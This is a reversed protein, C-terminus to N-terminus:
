VKTPKSTAGGCVSVDGYKASPAKQVQAVFKGAAKKAAVSAFGDEDTTAKGVRVDKKKGLELVVIARKAECYAKNAAVDARFKGRKYSLTVRTSVLAPLNPAEASPEDDSEFSRPTEDGGCAGLVVLAGVLMAVLGKRVVRADMTAEKM